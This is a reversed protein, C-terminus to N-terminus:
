FWVVFMQLLRLLIRVITMGINFGLLSFLVKPLLGFLLLVVRLRLLLLRLLVTVFCHISPTLMLLVWTVYQVGVIPVLAIRGIYVV